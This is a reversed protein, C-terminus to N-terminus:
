GPFSSADSLLLVPSKPFTKCTITTNPFSGDGYTYAMHRTPIFKLLHVLLVM